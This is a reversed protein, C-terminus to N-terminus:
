CKKLVSFLIEKLISTKTTGTDAMCCLGVKAVGRVIDTTWYTGLKFYENKNDRHRGHLM